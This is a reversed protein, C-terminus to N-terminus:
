LNGMNEFVFKGFRTKTSRYFAFGSDEVRLAGLQYGIYKPTTFELTYKDIVEVKVSADIDFYKQPMELTFDVLVGTENTVIFSMKGVKLAQIIFGFNDLFTKCTDSMHTQYYDRLLVSDLYEVEVDKFELDINKLQSFAASAKLPSNGSNLFKQVDVTAKGSVNVKHSYNGLSSPDSKRIKQDGPLTEDRFCTEPSAIIQLTKPDGGLITGTGAQELPIGFPIFGAQKIQKYVYSMQNCGSVLVASILAFLLRNFAYQTNM